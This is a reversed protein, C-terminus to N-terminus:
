IMDATTIIHQQRRKEKAYGLPLQSRGIGGPPQGQQTEGNRKEQKISLGRRLGINASGLSVLVGPEESATDQHARSSTLTTVTVRLADGGM